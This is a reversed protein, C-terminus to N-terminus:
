SAGVGRQGSIAAHGPISPLGTRPLHPPRHPNRIAQPGRVQRSVKRLVASCDLDGRGLNRGEKEREVPISDTNVGEWRGGGRRVLM